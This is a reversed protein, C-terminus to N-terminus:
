EATDEPVSPQAAADSAEPAAPSDGMLEYFKEGDLKEHEILYQAVIHLKDIHTKIIQECKDYCDSIIKNIETDIQAAVDESYNRIHNYDKGLFVEDNNKGFAIPGLKESMGYKTVM